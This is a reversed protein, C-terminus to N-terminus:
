VCLHHEGPKFKNFMLVKSFVYLQNFKSSNVTFYLSIHKNYLINQTYTDGILNTSVEISFIEIM